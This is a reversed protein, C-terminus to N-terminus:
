GTLKSHRGKEKPSTLYIKDPQTTDLRKLFDLKDPLLSTFFCKQIRGRSTELTFKHTANELRLVLFVEAAEAEWEGTELAITHVM